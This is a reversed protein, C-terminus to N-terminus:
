KAEKKKFAANYFEDSAFETAAHNLADTTAARIVREFEPTIGLWLINTKEGHILKEWVVRQDGPHTAKVNVDVSHWVMMYLDMWFGRIEGDVVVDCNALTVAPQTAPQTAPDGSTSTDLAANYGAQQLADIFYQTLVADLKVGEETAVHGLVMGYGNRKNGIYETNPRKDVFPRVLVNGQRKVAVPALTEHGIEAHATGFACGNQFAALVLMVGCYFGATIIRRTKRM